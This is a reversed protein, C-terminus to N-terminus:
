NRHWHYTTIYTSEEDSSYYEDESEFPDSDDDYDTYDSSDDNIYPDSVIKPISQFVLASYDNTCKDLINVFNTYNNTVISGYEEYLRKSMSNENDKFLISWDLNNRYIPQRYLPFYSPQPKYVILQKDNDTM